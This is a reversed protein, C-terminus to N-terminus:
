VGGLGAGERDVVKGGAEGWSGGVKQCYKKLRDKLMKAKEEQQLDSWLRPGEGPGSPPFTESQLQAKLSVYEARTAAPHPRPLRLPPTPADLPWPSASKPSPSLHGPLAAALHGAIFVPCACACHRGTALCLRVGHAAGGGAEGRAGVGLHRM